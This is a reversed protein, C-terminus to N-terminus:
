QVGYEGCILALRARLSWSCCSKKPRGSSLRGPTKIGCKKPATKWLWRVCKFGWGMGMGMGMRPVRETIQVDQRRPTLTLSSVSANAGILNHKM